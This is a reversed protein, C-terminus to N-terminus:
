APESAGEPAIVAGEAETAQREWLEARQTLVTRARPDRSSAAIRRLTEARQRWSKTQQELSLVVPTQRPRPM